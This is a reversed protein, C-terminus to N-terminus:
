KRLDAEGGGEVELADLVEVAVEEEEVVTKTV